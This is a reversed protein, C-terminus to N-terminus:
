SGDGLAAVVDSVLRAVGYDANTFDQTVGMRVVVLNKSPVIVIRQGLAGVAMFSDAPFGEKVRAKAGRSDGRNTWFGAAYGEPSEVTPTASWKVWGEPLIRKGEVVGDLRYLEGLRAWDRARGLFYTSGIPTGQGDFELTMGKMGLPAFLERRAFREVADAQGGVNNKVIRSLIMTSPSSYHWREGPLAKLPAHAATGAMDGELTLIQSGPDFGSNTEDLELGSTMRVLNEITIAHRPDTADKWEDVPAPGDLKLKGQRVLIGVLANIVSKSMSYGMLRTDVNIEPAYREAIIKGNHLVVIAKTRRRPGHDPEAFARDLAAKLKDNKPQVVDPGSIDPLVAAIEESRNPDMIPPIYEGEHGIVCGTEGRYVAYGDFNRLFDVTVEKRLKDVNYRIGRNLVRIGRAPRLTERYVQDPDLNSVFAATCLTHAIYETAVRIARDPRYQVAAVAAAAGGLIVLALLALLIKRM